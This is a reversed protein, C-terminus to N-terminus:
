SVCRGAIRALHSNTLASVLPDCGDPLRAEYAPARPIIVKVLPLRDGKSTRNVEISYGADPRATAIRGLGIVTCVTALILGGCILTFTNTRM